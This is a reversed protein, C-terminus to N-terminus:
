IKVAKGFDFPDNVPNDNKSEVCTLIKVSDGWSVKYVCDALFEFDYGMGELDSHLFTFM